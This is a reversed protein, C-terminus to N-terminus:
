LEIYEPVMDELLLPSIPPPVGGRFDETFSWYVIGTLYGLTEYEQFCTDAVYVCGRGVRYQKWFARFATSLILHNHLIASDTEFSNREAFLRYFILAWKAKRSFYQEDLYKYVLCCRIFDDSYIETKYHPFYYNVYEVITNIM